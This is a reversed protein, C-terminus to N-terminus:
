RPALISRVKKVVDEPTEFISGVLKETVAGTMPQLELNLSKMESVFAPDAAMKDFAKRYTEVIAPPTGPPLLFPRGIEQRTLMMRLMARHEDTKALDIVRQVGVLDPHPELGYQGIPIIKKATIARNQRVGSWSASGYGQVEGREIALLIENAGKYGEVVKLKTGLTENILRPLTSAASAGGTSGVVMETALLDELKKVPATEYALIAETDRMLNGIWGFERSDYKASDPKLLPEVVAGPNIAGVVSGDKEARNFLHSMAIVSGAGPMNQVVLTVKGPLHNGLHRAVVRAYTDYGGGADAGVIIRVQRDKFFSEDPQAEVPHLWASVVGLSAVVVTRRIM